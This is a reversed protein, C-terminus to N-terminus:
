IRTLKIANKFLQANSLSLDEEDGLEDEKERNDDINKEITDIDKAYDKATHRLDQDM